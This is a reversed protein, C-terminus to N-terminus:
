LNYVDTKYRRLNAPDSFWSCTEALGRRMGDRGGYQPEWGLLARAKRNDGWLREV